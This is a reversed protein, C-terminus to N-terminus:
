PNNAVVAMHDTRISTWHPRCDAYTVSASVYLRDLHGGRRHTEAQVIERLGTEAQVRHDNLHNFDGGILIHCGISSRVM